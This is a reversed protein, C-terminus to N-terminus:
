VGSSAHDAGPVELAISESDQPAASRTPWRHGAERLQVSRARVITRLGDEFAGRIASFDTRRDLSQALTSLWAALGQRRDRQRPAYPRQEPVPAPTTMSPNRPSASACSGFRTGGPSFSLSRM